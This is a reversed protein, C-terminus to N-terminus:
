HMETLTFVIPTTLPIPIKALAPLMGSRELFRYLPVLGKHRAAFERDTGLRLVTRSFIGKKFEVRLDCLTGLKKIKGTTIFNLGAWLPSRRLAPKFLVTARPFFPVLLIKFHPEYPITYNVTRHIMIGGPKLIKKLCLFTDKLKPMPIHEVVNTSFIIDFQAHLAACEDAAIPHYSSADLGLIKFIEIAGHYYWDFTSLSPEIAHINFGRSKLFGYIFGLGAGIELLASSKEIRLDDLLSLMSESEELYHVLINRFLDMGRVTDPYRRYQQYRLIHERVVPSAYLEELRSLYFGTLSTNM